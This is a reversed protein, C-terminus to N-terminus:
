LSTFYGGDASNWNWIQGEFSTPIAVCKTPEAVVGISLFNNMKQDISLDYQLNGNADSTLASANRGSGGSSCLSSFQVLSVNKDALAKGSKSFLKVTVLATSGSVVPNPNISYTFHDYILDNPDSILAPPPPTPQPIPQPTPAPAPPQVVNELNGIRKEHDDLKTDQEINKLTNQDIQFDQEPETKPVILDALKLSSTTPSPSPKVSNTTKTEKPVEIKPEPTASDSIPAEVSGSITPEPNIATPQKNCSAAILSLGLILIILRKM